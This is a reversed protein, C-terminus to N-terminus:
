KKKKANRPMIKGIETRIIRNIRRPIKNMSNMNNSIMQEFFNGRWNQLIAELYLKELAKVQGEISYKESLAVSHAGFRELKEGDGSDILEYGQSAKTKLIILNEM